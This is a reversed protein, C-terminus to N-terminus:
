KGFHVVTLDKGSNYICIASGFDTYDGMIVKRHEPSLLWAQNQAQKDAMFGTALIEGARTLQNDNSFVFESWDKGTRSHAWYNYKVMDECKQRASNDLKVNRQLLPLFVEQRADNILALEMSAIPIHEIKVLPKLTLLVVWTAM